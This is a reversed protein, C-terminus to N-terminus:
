GMGFCVWDFLLGFGFLEFLVLALGFLFWLWGLAFGVWVLTLGFCVWVNCVWDFSACNSLAGKIFVHVKLFHEKKPNSIKPNPNPPHLLVLGFRLLGLGIWLLGVGLWLWGLACGVWVLTLGFCVWGM